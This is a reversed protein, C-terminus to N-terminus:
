KASDCKVRQEETRAFTYVYQNTAENFSMVVYEKNPDIGSSLKVDKTSLYGADYLEQVSVCVETIVTAETVQIAIEEFNKKLEDETMQGTFSKTPYNYNSKGQMFNYLNKNLENVKGNMILQNSSTKTSQTQNLKSLNEPTPDLMFVAYNSVVEFGITYFFSTSTYANALREKALYSTRIISWVMKSNKEYGSDGNNTFYAEQINGYTSTYQGFPNSENMDRGYTPEGDTLLIIVPVRGKEASNLLMNTAQQIGLLTYTGGNVAITKNKYKIAGVNSGSWTTRGSSLNSVNNISTLGIVERLSCDKNGAAVDIYCQGSSNKPMGSYFVFGVRNKDNERLTELAQNIANVAAEYRYISVGNSGMVKKTDMGMSTSVDVVFVVDLGVQIREGESDDFETSNDVSWKEAANLIAKEQSSTVSEEAQNVMKIVSNGVLLALLALVVLVCLLEILSFGKRNM